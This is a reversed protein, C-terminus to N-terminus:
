LTYLLCILQKNVILMVKGQAILVILQLQVLCSSLDQIRCCSPQHNNTNTQRKESKKVSKCQHLHIYATPTCIVIVTTTRSNM